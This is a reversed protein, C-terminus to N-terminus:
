WDYSSDGGVGVVMTTPITRLMRLVKIDVKVVDRVLKYATTDVSFPRSVEEEGCVVLQIEQGLGLHPLHVCCEVDDSLRKVLQKRYVCKNPLIAARLLQRHCHADHRATRSTSSAVLRAARITKGVTCSFPYANWKVWAM